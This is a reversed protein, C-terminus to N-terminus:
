FASIILGGNSMEIVSTHNYLDDLSEICDYDRMVEELDGYEVFDCDLAIVDLEINFDCGAELNTLYEFLANKGEYSFSNSRGADRFADHFANQTITRIM